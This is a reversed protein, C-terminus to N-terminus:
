AVAMRARNKLGASSRYHRREAGGEHAEGSQEASRAAVAIEVVLDLAM